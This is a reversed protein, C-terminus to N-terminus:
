NYYIHCELNRRGFNKCQEKTPMYIDLKNSTIAGGRDQVVFWGGNPKDKFYPIYIRTGFPIDKSAAVTYWETVHAGSATKGFGSSGVAKGGEYATYASCNMTKVVPEGSVAETGSDRSSTDSRSVIEEQQKAIVKNVPEKITTSSIEERSIEIDNEYTVKYNIQKLGNVGNTIVRINSSDERTGDTSVVEFPIEVDQVEIVEKVTNYDQTSKALEIVNEKEEIIIEEQAIDMTINQQKSKEPTNFAIVGVASTLILILAICVTKMLSFFMKEKKLM